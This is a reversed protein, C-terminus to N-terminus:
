PLEAYRGRFHVLAAGARDPTHVSLVRGVVIGHDGAPHITETRCELTSLADDLLAVGTSSGRHHPVRDLQGHMPRGPSSLWQATARAEAPLVSVGWVASEEVAEYWRGDLEACVLVLVPELSVSTLSNVTMAHDHGGSFTTVVAVGSALRGIARRFDWPDVDGATAVRPGDTM